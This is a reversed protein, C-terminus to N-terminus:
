DHLSPLRPKGDLHDLLRLVLVLFAVTQPLPPRRFIGVAEVVRRKRALRQGTGHFLGALPDLQDGVDHLLVGRRFSSGPPPGHLAARERSETEFGTGHIGASRLRQAWKIDFYESTGM